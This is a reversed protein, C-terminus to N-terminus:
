NKSKEYKKEVFDKIKKKFNDKDFRRAHQRIEEKSFSTFQFGQVVESLAEPTQEEFFLGTKGEVVTEKAGGAKYAIVPRGCAMAELPVIGFDEEGPFILSRCQALHKSLDQDSLRGLFEVNPGAKEQLNGRDPGDGIIKLPFDLGTFAEVVIDIRKYANLRSVVLFYDHDLPLPRFFGAEVPPNIIVSERGYTRKIRQAITGSNAIFFDVPGATQLDWKKVPELM